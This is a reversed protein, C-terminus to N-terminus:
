SPSLFHSRIKNRLSFDDGLSYIKKDVTLSKLNEAIILSNTLLVEDAQLIKRLPFGRKVNETSYGNLRAYELIKLQAIGPLCPLNDSSAYHIRSGKRLLINTYSGELVRKGDWTFLVEDSGHSALYHSRWYRLREYNTSKYNYLFSDYWEDRHISASLPNDKRQYPLAFIIIDWEKQSPSKLPAYLIKIRLCEKSLALTHILHYVSEKSFHEEKLSFSFIRSTNGMREKHEDYFFLKGKEYLLTEFFGTGYQFHPSFPSLALEEGQRQGNYLILGKNM